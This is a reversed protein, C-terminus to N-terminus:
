ATASDHVRLAAQASAVRGEALTQEQIATLLAQELEIRKAVRKAERQDKRIREVTEQTVFVNQEREYISDNPHKWADKSYDVGDWKVNIYKKEPDDYYHNNSVWGYSTSVAHGHMDATGIRIKATGRSTAKKSVAAFRDGKRLFNMDVQHEFIEGNTRVDVIEAQEVAVACCRPMHRCCSYHPDM